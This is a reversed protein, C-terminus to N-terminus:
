SGSLLGAISDRPFRAQIDTATPQVAGSVSPDFCLLMGGLGIPQRYTFGPTTGTPTGWAVSYGVYLEHSHAAHLPPFSMATTSPIEQTAAGDVHVVTPGSFQQADYETGWGANSASLVPTITTGGTHQVKGYWLEMDFGNGSWYGSVVKNWSTVGGGSISTIHNGSTTDVTATFVVWNGVTPAPISLSHLGQAWAGHASGVRAWTSAASASTAALGMTFLSSILALVAAVISFRKM